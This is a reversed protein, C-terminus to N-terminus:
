RANGTAAMNSSLLLIGTNVLFDMPLMTEHMINARIPGGAHVATVPLTRNATMTQRRIVWFEAAGGQCQNASSAKCLFEAM